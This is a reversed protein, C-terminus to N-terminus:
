DLGVEIANTVVEAAVEAHVVEPLAEWVSSRRRVASVTDRLYGPARGGTSSSGCSKKRLAARGGAVEPKSEGPPPFATLCAGEPATQLSVSRLEPSGQCGPRANGCTPCTWCSLGESPASTSWPSQEPHSQDRSVSPPNSFITLGEEPPLPFGTESPAPPTDPIAFSPCSPVPLPIDLPISAIEDSSSPSPVRPASVRRLGLRSPRNPNPSPCPSGWPPKPRERASFCQPAASGPLLNSCAAPQLDASLESHKSKLPTIHLTEILTVGTCASSDGVLNEQTSTTCSERTAPFSDLPKHMVHSGQLAVTQYRAVCKRQVSWRVKGVRISIENRFVLCDHEVGLTRAARSVCAEFFASSRVTLAEPWKPFFGRAVGRLVAAQPKVTSYELCGVSASCPGVTGSSCDSLSSVANPAPKADVDPMQSQFDASSGCEPLEAALPLASLDQPPQVSAVKHLAILKAATDFVDQDSLRPEAFLDLVATLLERHSAVPVFQQVAPIVEAYMRAHCRQSRLEWLLDGLVEEAAHGTVRCTSTGMLDVIENTVRFETEDFEACRQVFASAWDESVLLGLLTAKM